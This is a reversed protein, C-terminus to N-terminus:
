AVTTHLSNLLLISVTVGPALKEWSDVRTHNKILILGTELRRRGGEKSLYLRSVGFLDCRLSNVAYMVAVTPDVPKTYLLPNGISFRRGSQADAWDRVTVSMDGYDGSPADRRATTGCTSCVGGDGGVVM